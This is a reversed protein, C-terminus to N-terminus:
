LCVVEEELKIKFKNFVKKKALKILNKVDGATADLVNVIFNPHKPSIMAGGCSIGALGTESILFAAPIVPFPDTKIINKPIKQNKGLKRIDVNKFISGLSPYELPQRQRRYNLNAEMVEQIRKKDRKKFHLAAGIIVERNGREKFVSHRYAFRCDARSRKIIKPTGESIDLSVIDSIIDKMEGGFAGANGYIAGGVTGPIGAAWELGSLKNIMLYNLLQVMPVGAGVKLIDGDKELFQIDPKLVLGEFKNDDFLINTGGGLIFVADSYRAKAQPKPLGFAGMRINQADSGRLLGRPISRPLYRAESHLRRWEKIAKIIDDANKAEFFYKAPGGIKFNSHRSLTINEQFM